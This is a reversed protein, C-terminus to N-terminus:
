ETGRKMFRKKMFVEAIDLDEPTTIKINTYSGELTKVKGGNYEVIASDDTFQMGTKLARQYAKMIINYPFVQPTQVAVLRDRVLTRKIEIATLGHGATVDERLEKITDKPPVGVIVGDCDKLSHIAKRITETTILPRAGDHILVISDHDDILKLGHYVSEQRERGGPAIKKVKSIGHESIIRMGDEMETDGLVPIIEIIEEVDQLAKLSWAILPIGRLEVLTKRGGFRRGVGASPVIAIVPRTM